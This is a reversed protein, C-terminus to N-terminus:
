LSKGRDRALVDIVQKEMEEKFWTNATKKATKVFDLREKVKQNKKFSYVLRIDDRKPGIRQFVGGDPAKATKALIFTRNAGKLQPKGLRTVSRKFGLGDVRERAARGKKTRVVQGDRIKVISLGSFTYAAPVQSAFTPRAPGGVVPAASSKAGPTAKPRDGGREFVSLFLRPKQGVSIEAFPRQQAVSAFPKLIAGNRLIFDERRITFEEKLKAREAEQVRRATKNIANVVAYALRKQGNRMRLILPAADIAVNVNM